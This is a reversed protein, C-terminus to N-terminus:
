EAREREAAGAKEAEEAADDRGRGAIGGDKPTPPCSTTPWALTSHIKRMEGVLM